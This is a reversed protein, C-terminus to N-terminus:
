LNPRYLWISRTRFFFCSFRACFVWLAWRVCSLDDPGCTTDTKTELHPILRLSVSLPFVHLSLDLSHLGSCFMRKGRPPSLVHHVEIMDESRATQLCCCFEVKARRGFGDVRKSPNQHWFLPTVGLKIQYKHSFTFDTLPWHWLSGGQWRLHCHIISITPPVM